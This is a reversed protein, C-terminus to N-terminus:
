NLPEFADMNSMPEFKVGDFSSKPKTKTLYKMSFWNYSIDIKNKPIYAWLIDEKPDYKIDGIVGVEEGKAQPDTTNNSSLSAEEFATINNSISYVKTKIPNWELIRDGTKTSYVQNSWIFQNRKGKRITDAWKSVFDQNTSQM